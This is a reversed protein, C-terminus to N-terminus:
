GGLTGLSARERGSLAVGSLKERRLNFRFPDRWVVASAMAAAPRGTERARPAFAVQWRCGACWLIFRCRRINSFMLSRNGACAGM